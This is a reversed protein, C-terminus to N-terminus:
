NAGDSLDDMIVTLGVEQGPNQYIPQNDFPVLTWDDFENFEDVLIVAPSPNPNNSDYILWGTVNWNLDDPITDFLSKYSPDTLCM